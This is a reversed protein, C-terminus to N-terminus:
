QIKTYNCVKCTSPEEAFFMCLKKYSQEASLYHNELEDCLVTASSLFKSAYQIFTGNKEDISCVYDETSFDKMINDIVNKVNTLGAHISKLATACDQIDIRSASSVSRLEDWFTISDANKKAQKLINATAIDILRTKGDSGIKSATKILSDIRIGEVKPKGASENVFNSIILLLKLIKSLKYNKVIDRCADNLRMLQEHLSKRNEEFQQIYLFVNLKQRFKPIKSVSLFFKETNGLHEFSGTYSHVNKMEVDSPLLSIMNEIQERNVKSADLSAVANCLEDYTEFGKYQALAISINYSRKADVFSYRQKNTKSSKICKTISGSSTKAIAFLEQVNKIDCDDFHINDCGETSAWLSHKIKDKPISKWHIKKRNINAKEVIPPLPLNLHSIDMGNCNAFSQITESAIGDQIMKHVVCQPPVKCSLMKKYTGLEQGCTDKSQCMKSVITTAYQESHDSTSCSTNGAIRTGNDGGKYSQKFADIEGRTCNEFAMKQAVADLPIGLKIMTNFKMFKDKTLIHNSNIAYGEDTNKPESVTCDGNDYKNEDQNRRNVVTKKFSSPNENDHNSIFFRKDGNRSNEDPNVKHTDMCKDNKMSSVEGVGSIKKEKKKNEISSEMLHNHLLKHSDSDHELIKNCKFINDTNALNKKIDQMSSTTSSSSNSFKLSRCNTTSSCPQNFSFRDSINQIDIEYNSSATNKLNFGATGCFRDTQVNSSATSHEM